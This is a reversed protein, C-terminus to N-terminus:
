LTHCYSNIDSKVRGDVTFLLSSIDICTFLFVNERTRNSTERRKNLRETRTRFQIPLWRGCKCWRIQKKRKRDTSRWSISFDTPKTLLLFHRTQENLNISSSSSALWVRNNMWLGESQHCNLRYFMKLAEIQLYFSITVIEIFEHNAM